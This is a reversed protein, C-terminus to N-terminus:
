EIVRKGSSPDAKRNTALNVEIGMFGDSFKHSESSKLPPYFNILKTAQVRKINSVFYTSPNTKSMRHLRETIVFEVQLLLRRRPSKMPTM